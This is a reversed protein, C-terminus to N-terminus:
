LPPLVSRTGIDTQTKPPNKHKHTFFAKNERTLSHTHCITWKIHRTQTNRHTNWGLDWLQETSYLHHRMRIEEDKNLSTSAEKVQACFIDGAM